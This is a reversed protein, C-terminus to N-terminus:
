AVTWNSPIIIENYKREKMFPELENISPFEANFEKRLDSLLNLGLSNRYREGLCLRYWEDLNSLTIIGQIREHWGIQDLLTIIVDRESDICVIVIKDASISDVIGEAIKLTLSIHKIQIAPGFNAWMDIGRDAANTVGVRYLAAPMSLKPNQSSIGIVTKIFLDFDELIDTDKNEIEITVKARLTRVITDFLAYVLIEYMKDISRHLGPSNIFTDVTRILSFTEASSNSIYKAIDNVSSLRELLSNYIYAEVLGGNTKNFEGLEELAELPMANDDFLNDQFKQSSTSKKGVLLISVDDRWKKSINRFSALDKFDVDNEARHHYLIEAIQIPKYLHVRSKAIISDLREKPNFIKVM